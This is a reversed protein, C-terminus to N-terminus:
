KILDKATEDREPTPERKAIFRIEKTVPIVRLMLQNVSIKQENVPMLPLM